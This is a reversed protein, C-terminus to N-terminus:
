AKAKTKCQEAELHAAVVRPDSMIRAYRRAQKARSIEHAIEFGYIAFFPASILAMLVIIPLM